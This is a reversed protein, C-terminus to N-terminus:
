TIVSPCCLIIVKLQLRSDHLLSSSLCVLGILCAYRNLNLRFISQTNVYSLFYDADCVYVSTEHGSELYVWSM